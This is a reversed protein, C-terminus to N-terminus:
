VRTVSRITLLGEITVRRNNQFIAFEYM